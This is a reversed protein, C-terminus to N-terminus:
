GLGWFIFRRLFFEPGCIGAPAPCQFTGNGNGGPPVLHSDRAIADQDRGDLARHATPATRAPTRSSLAHGRFQLHESLGPWSASSAPDLTTPRSHSQHTQRLFWHAAQPYRFRRARGRASTGNTIMLRSKKTSRAISLSRCRRGREQAKATLWCGPSSPAERVSSKRRGWDQRHGLHDICGVRSQLRTRNHPSRCCPRCPIPHWKRAPDM